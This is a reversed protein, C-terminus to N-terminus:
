YGRTVRSSRVSCRPRVTPDARRGPPSYLQARVPKSRLQREGPRPTRGEEGRGTTRQTSWELKSPLAARKPQGESHLIRAPPGLLCPATREPKKSVFQLHATVSGLPRLTISPSIHFRLPNHISSVPSFCSRILHLMAMSNVM